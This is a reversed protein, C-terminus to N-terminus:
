PTTPRLLEALEGGQPKIQSVAVAPEMQQSLQQLHALSISGAPGTEVACFLAGDKVFGVICHEKYTGAFQSGESAGPLMSKPLSFVSLREDGRGFVLHGSKTGGVPCFSAGHFDWGAENPHVMLVPRHLTDHMISAIATDDDKPAPMGQHNAVKSCGDHTAILASELDEPLATALQTSGPVLSPPQKKTRDLIVVSVVLVAAAALPWIVWALRRTRRGPGIVMKNDDNLLSGIRNRLEKSACECGWCRRVAEKLVPDHFENSSQM